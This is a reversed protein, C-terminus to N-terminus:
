EDIGGDLKLHPPFTKQTLISGFYMGAGALVFSLLGSVNVDTVFALWAPLSEASKGLLLFGAPAIAGMILAAYAGVINAKRWYIGAAVCGLAGATYM